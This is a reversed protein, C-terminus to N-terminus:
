SITSNPGAAALVEKKRGVLEVQVLRELRQRVATATVELKDTLAQISCATTQRLLDFVVQDIPRIHDLCPTDM